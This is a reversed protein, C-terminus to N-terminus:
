QSIFDVCVCNCDSIYCCQTKVRLEVKNDLDCMYIYINVDINGDLVLMYVPILIGGALGADHSMDNTMESLMGLDHSWIISRGAHAQILDHVDM